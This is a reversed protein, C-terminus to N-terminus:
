PLPRRILAIDDLWLTGANGRGDADGIIVGIGTVRTPDFAQLGEADAWDARKLDGWTFSVQRWGAVCDPTTEFKVDFPTTAETAGSFVLFAFSQGAKSAHLWFTLGSGAGWNQATDYSRGFSAGGGPKVDYAVKLSAAGGHAATNDLAVDVTARDGESHYNSEGEFNDIVDSSLPAAAPPQAPRVPEAVPRPPPQAPAPQPTAPQAARPSAKWRNYFVNLLPVFEATAKQHGATSPHSDGTPYACFNSKVTQVHQVAGDSWRHHNGTQAGADNRNADGGNSTLVNYYDFVAVNHHAYGKLWENVLWNNFARANAARDPATEERTLPPATIVVFLKDQRSAFCTLLRNYVAKANGVALEENPEAGPPDNPAGSLDSNPFCSKFLIIENEGAPGADPRSWAGFDGINQGTERYLANLIAASNPGVFWEPWNPIDTRDGIGDPGWGYNTGSVFYNNQMLARALGGSPQDPNPDALWNGGTSHHVFILRVPAAPPRPDDAASSQRVHDACVVALVAFVTLCSKWPKM